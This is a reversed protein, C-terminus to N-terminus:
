FRGRGRGRGGRGWGRGGGRNGGRNGGGRGRNHGQGRGKSAPAGAAMRADREEESFDLKNDIGILQCFAATQPNTQERPMDREKINVADEQDDHVTIEFNEPIQLLGKNVVNEKIWDEEAVIQDRYYTDGRHAQVQDQPSGGVQLEPSFTRLIALWEPDYQLKLPRQVPEPDETATCPEIELLQLFENDRGKEPKSLALFRTAKNTIDKPFPLDPSTESRTEPAFNTSMAELEARLHEPVGNADEARSIDEPKPAMGNGQLSQTPLSVEERIVEGSTTDHDADYGNIALPQVQDSMPLATSESHVLDKSKPFSDVRNNTWRQM